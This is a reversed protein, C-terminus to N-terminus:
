LNTTGKQKPIPKHELIKTSSHEFDLKELTLNLSIAWDTPSSARSSNSSKSVNSRERERMGVESKLDIMSSMSTRSIWDRGVPIFSWIENGRETLENKVYANDSNFSM